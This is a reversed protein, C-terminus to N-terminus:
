RVARETTRRFNHPRLRRLSPRGRNLTVEKFLGGEKFATKTGRPFGNVDIQTLRQRHHQWRVLPKGGAASEAASRVAGTNCSVGAFTLFFCVAALAFLAPSFRRAAPEAAISTANM